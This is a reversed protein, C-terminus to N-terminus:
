CFPNGEYTVEQHIVIPDSILGYKADETYTVAISPNDGAYKIVDKMSDWLTCLFFHSYEDQDVIKVYAGRNGEIALTDKVGTIDLYNKFENKKSLPVLGHWTRSIM